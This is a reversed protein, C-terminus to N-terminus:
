AEFKQFIKHFVNLSAVAIAIKHKTEFDMDNTKGDLCTDIDGPEVGAASALSEKTEYNLVGFTLESFKQEPNKDPIFTLFLLRDSLLRLEQPNDPLSQIDGEAIDEISAFPLNLLESLDKASFNHVNLMFDMCKVIKESPEM